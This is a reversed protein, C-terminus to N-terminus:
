YLRFQTQISSFAYNWFIMVANLELLMPLISELKDEDSTENDNLLNIIYNIFISTDENTHSKLVEDLWTQFKEANM